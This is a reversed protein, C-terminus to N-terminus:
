ISVCFNSLQSIIDMFPDTVLRIPHSHQLLNLPSTYQNPPSLAMTIFDRVQLRSMGFQGVTTDPNPCVEGEYDLTSLGPELPQSRLIPPPSASPPLSRLNGEGISFKRTSQNGKLVISVQRQIYVRVTPPAASEPASKSRKLKTHAPITPYMFAQLSKSPAILQLYFPITDSLAFTQVAPIFLHCDIPEINSVSKAAITSTIQFWEEPVSKVTDLFPFPSSLVPQSPRTRPQYTFAVMLRKPLKWIALKSGRREVVVSLHYQCKARIDTTVGSLPNNYTPPLARTTGNDTFGEPMVTKFPFMSPCLSRGDKDSRRWVDYSVSFFTPNAAQGEPSGLHLRGELKIYVSQVGQTRSLGIDGSIVSHRGYTPMSADPDQDRLALTILNNSRVFVGLPTRRRTCASAALIRESPRPVVSYAPVAASPTYTPPELSMKHVCSPRRPLFSPHSLLSTM